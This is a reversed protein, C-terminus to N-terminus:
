EKAGDAIEPVQINIALNLGITHGPTKNQRIIKTEIKFQEFVIRCYLEFGVNSFEITRSCQM